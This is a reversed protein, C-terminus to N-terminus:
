ESEELKYKDIKFPKFKTGQENFFKSFFEYYVLRITQISVIMGELVIIFLNGIVLIIIGPVSLLSGGFKEALIVVVTSLLVHAFAFAGVRIFSLNNTIAQLIVEFVEVIATLLWLGFGNHFLKKERKLIAMIPENLFILVFAAAIIYFLINNETEKMVIIRFAVIGLCLFIIFNMVGNHSLLAKLYSKNIIKNGINLLIGILNIVFGFGVTLLFLNLISDVTTDLIYPKDIGFLARNIPQIIHGIEHHELCFAAGYLYGFIMSFLGVSMVIAGASRIREGVKAFKLGLGALFLVLGQGMDGFMLGFLLLFSVAVFGTPDITGYKPSGYNFVIEEFPRFLRFNNLLVPVKIKGEKVDDLEEPLYSVVSFSGGLLEKLHATFRELDRKLIWGEIISIKNTREVYEHISDYYKLLNFSYVAEVLEKERESRLEEIFKDIVALEKDVEALKESLRKFIEAALENEDFNIKKEKFSLKKLESELTWKGKRSTFIIYTDDQLQQYVIRNQMKENLTRLDEPLISGLVYHLFSLSDLEKKSLTLSSFGEIEKISHLFDNRKELLRKQEERKEKILDFLHNIYAEITEFNNLAGKKDSSELKFFEEIAAIKEDVAEFSKARLQQEEGPSEKDEKEHRKIEVWGVEGLLDLTRQFDKEMVALKVYKMPSTIFM